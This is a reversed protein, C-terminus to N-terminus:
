YNNKLELLKELNQTSSGKNKIKKQFLDFNSFYNKIDNVNAIFYDNFIIRSWEIFHIINSPFHRLTSMMMM